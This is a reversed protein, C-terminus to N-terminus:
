LLKNTMEVNRNATIIWRDALSISVDFITQVGAAGSTDVVNSAEGCKGEHTLVVDEAVPM